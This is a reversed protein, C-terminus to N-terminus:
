VYDVEFALLLLSNYVFCREKRITIRPLAENDDVYLVFGIWSFYREIAPWRNGRMQMGSWYAVSACMREIHTIYTLDIITMEDLFWPSSTV